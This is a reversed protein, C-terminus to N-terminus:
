SEHTWWRKHYKAVQKSCFKCNQYRLQQEPNVVLSICKFKTITVYGCRSLSKAGTVDYSTYIVCGMENEGPQVLTSEKHLLIWLQCM